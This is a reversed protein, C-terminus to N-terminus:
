DARSLVLKLAFAAILSAFLWDFLRMVKRSQRLAAVV